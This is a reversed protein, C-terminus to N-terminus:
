RILKKMPTSATRIAFMSPFDAVSAFPDLEEGGLCRLAIESYFPEFEQGGTMHDRSEEIEGSTSDADSTRHAQIFGDAEGPKIEKTGILCARRILQHQVAWHLGKPNIEGHARNRTDSTLRCGNQSNYDWCLALGASNRPSHTVSLEHEIQRLRKATPFAHNNGGSGGTPEPIPHIPKRKM